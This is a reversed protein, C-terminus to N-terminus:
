ECDPSIGALAAERTKLRASKELVRSRLIAGDARRGSTRSKSRPASSASNDQVRRQSDRDQSRSM